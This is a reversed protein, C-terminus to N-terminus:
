GIPIKVLIFSGKGIKSEILFKGEMLAVREKINELGYHNIKSPKAYNFGKGDDEISMTIENLEVYMSTYVNKAESHKLINLIAEKYIMYLNISIFDDPASDKVNIYSNFQFKIKKISLYFVGYEDFKIFLEAWFEYKQDLLPLSSRIKNMSKQSIKVIKSIYKEMNKMDDLLQTIVYESCKNIELLDNCINDHMNKIIERNENYIALREEQYQKEIKAKVKHLRYHKIILCITFPLMFITLQYYNLHIKKINFYTQLIMIIVFIVSSIIIAIFWLHPKGTFSARSKKLLLSFLFIVILKTKSIFYM